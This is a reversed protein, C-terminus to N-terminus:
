RYALNRLAFVRNTLTFGLSLICRFAQRLKVNDSKKVKDSCKKIM